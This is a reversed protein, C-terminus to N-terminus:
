PFCGGGNAKVTFHGQGGAGWAGWIRNKQEGGWGRCGVSEVWPSKETQLFTWAERESHCDQTHNSSEQKMLAPSGGKNKGRSM